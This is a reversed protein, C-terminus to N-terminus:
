RKLSGTAPLNPAVQLWVTVTTGVGVESEISIEGGHMEIIEKAINLGLGTGAITMQSVNQARYFRDFIHPLDEAPIGIGTDEVRLWVREGTPELGTSVLVRGVRTYKLANSVLNTIVQGLRESHGIVRPLDNAPQCDLELGLELARPQLSDVVQAVLPNLAVKELTMQNREGEIRSLDLVDNVFKSLREIQERLGQMYEARKEEPTRELLYVRTNLVSLPTRLEHSVDAIFRSKMRDLETLRNNAAELELTREYVREELTTNIQRLADEAAKRERIDEILSLGRLTGTEYDPLLTLTMRAWIPYGAKHLYRKEIQYSSIEGDRLRKALAADAEIDDPHTYDRWHMQELEEPTYGLLECYAPNVFLNGGQGNGFSIGISANEFIARFRAESQRLTEEAQKREQIDEILALRMPKSDDANVVRTVTLRGWVVEGTKRIFRKELQYGPIENAEFRTLLDQDAKVDDPHTTQSWHLQRLESQEYGLFTCIAQNVYITKDGPHSFSIGIPANEFIARFRAESERLTEEALKRQTIDEVMVLERPSGDDADPVLLMTLRAWIVEGSKRIYRKELAYHDIKGAMMQTHLDHDAQVDDPHTYQMWPKVRLEELSYGLIRSYAPNALMPRKDKDAFSMGVAANEFIARFRAESQRLTEEAQKRETIDELLSLTRPTGESSDHLRLLTIRAWIMEGSPRIYRKEMQYGPIEGAALRAYQAQDAVIDDPHTYQTWHTNQLVEPDFGLIRSYAANTLLPVGDHDGFSIGIPTNEFITRFRAESQRLREEAEKRETIDEILGVLLREGDVLGPFLSISVRVWLTQGSRHLYRKEMEYGNIEGANLQNLLEVNPEIDEPHTFERFHSGRLEDATWGLLRCLAPNSQIITGDNKTVVIGVTAAEFVARFRADSTRADAEIRKRETEDRVMGLLYRNGDMQVEDLSIMVDRVQGSKTRFGTEFDRVRGEAQLQSLMMRRDESSQWIPLENLSSRGLLEERSYGVIRLFSENVDVYRGDDLTTITIASPNREFIRAFHSRAREAQEAEHRRETLAASLLLATISLTTLYYGIGNSLTQAYSESRSAVINIALVSLLSVVFSTAIVERRDFRLSIWVLGPFALYGLPQTLSIESSNLIVVLTLCLIITAVVVMELLKQRTIPSSPTKAWTLIVPAVVLAGLADGLWWNFWITPLLGAEAQGTLALAFVGVTSSVLSSIAAGAVMFIFADALREFTPRFRFRELLVVATLTELTNGIGISVGAVIGLGNILNITLAGFFIAPLVRRGLLLTAAIAIGTPPWIITVAQNVTAFQLGLLATVIYVLALGLNIVALRVPTNLGFGLRNDLSPEKYM